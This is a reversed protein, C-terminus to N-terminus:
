NTEENWDNYYYLFLIRILFNLSNLVNIVITNILSLNFNFTTIVTVLACALSTRM